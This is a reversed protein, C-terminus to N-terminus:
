FPIDDEFAPGSSDSAPASPASYGGGGGGEGRGSAFDIDDAVVELKSRKDGTNKDAWESWRLKGDVIIKSGKSLFRSLSEARTGFVVVDVYNPADEWEGSQPNKRRDNVAMRIQMVAMGSGTSRMEPDRTLNGSICVRNISM